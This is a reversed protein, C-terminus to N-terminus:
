ISVENIDYNLESIENNNRMDQNLGQEPASPNEVQTALAEMQSVV